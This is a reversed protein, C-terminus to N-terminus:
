SPSPAGRTRTAMAEYPTPLPDESPLSSPGLLVIGVVFGFAGVSLDQYSVQAHEGHGHHMNVRTESCM